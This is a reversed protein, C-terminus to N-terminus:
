HHEITTRTRVEEDTQPLTQTTTRREVTTSSPERVTEDKHFTFCGSATSVLFVAVALPVIRQSTKIM